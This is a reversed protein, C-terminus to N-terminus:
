NSLNIIQQFIVFFITKDIFYYFLNFVIKEGELPRIFHIGELWNTQTNVTLGRLYKEHHSVLVLSVQFEAGRGDCGGNHCSKELKDETDGL